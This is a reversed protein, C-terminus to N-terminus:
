YIKKLIYWYWKSRPIDWTYHQVHNTGTILFCIVNYICFPFIQEHVGTTDNGCNEGVLLDNGLRVQVYDVCRVM